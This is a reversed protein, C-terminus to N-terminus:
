VRCLNVSHFTRTVMQVEASITADCLVTFLSELNRLLSTAKTCLHSFPSLFSSGHVWGLDRELTKPGRLAFTHLEKFVRSSFHNWPGESGLDLRKLPVPSTALSLAATCVCGCQGWWAVVHSQVHQSNGCELFHWDYKLTGSQCEKSHPVACLITWHPSEAWISGSQTIKMIVSAEMPWSWSKFVLCIFCGSWLGGEELEGWLRIGEDAARM